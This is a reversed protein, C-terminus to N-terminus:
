SNTRNIKKPKAFVTRLHNVEVKLLLSGSFVLLALNWGDPGWQPSKTPHIKKIM